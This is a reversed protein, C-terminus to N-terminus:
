KKPPPPPLPNMGVGLGEILGDVINRHILFVEQRGAPLEVEGSLEVVVDEEVKKVDKDGFGPKMELPMQRRETKSPILKGVSKEGVRVDIEMQRREKPVLQDYLKLIDEWQPQSKPLKDSYRFTGTVVIKTKGAQQVDAAVMLANSFRLDPVLFSVASAEILKGDAYIFPVVDKKVDVSVPLSLAVRVPRKPALAKAEEATPPKAEPFDIRFPQPAHGTELGNSTLGGAAGERDRNQDGAPVSAPAVGRERWLQERVAAVSGSLFDTPLKPLAEVGALLGQEDCAQIVIANVRPAFAWHIGHVVARGAGPFESTARPWLMGAADLAEALPNTAGADRGATTAGGKGAPVSAPAVGRLDLLVVPLGFRWGTLAAFWDNRNTTKRKIKGFSEGRDAKANETKEAETPEYGLVYASVNPGSRVEVEVGLPELVAKMKEAATKLAAAQPSDFIPVVLKQGRKLLPEIASGGHVLVSDEYNTAFDVKAASVKVPLTATQGDLQCRVTLKWEGAPANAPLPISMALTGERTTGRYFEQFVKGDPRLVSIHFPVVARITQKDKDLLRVSLVLDDGANLVQKASLEISKAPRKLIGYMRATTASLDCPSGGLAKEGLSKEENLDYLAGIGLSAGGEYFSSVMVGGQLQRWDAQTAIHSDNVAIVYKADQGGHIQALTAGFNNHLQGGCTTWLLNFLKEANARYWREFMLTDNDGAAMNPAAWNFPKGPQTFPLDAEFKQVSPFAVTTNGDVLVQGGGKVFHEIGAMAEASVPFTQGLVVLAKVSLPRDAALEEETVFRPTTGLRTLAVFMKYHPEGFGMTVHQRQFQSKSFLIGVGHDGRGNIALCAFRELFERGALVDAAGSKGKMNVWNTERNMGGLLNSFGECAFGIGTVGWALGHAAVRTFKGPYAARGHATAIANSLWTPRAGRNMELLGATLLWQYAYDPGGIQDNWTSQYQFDLPAYAAPFYQGYRVACHDVQVSSTNRFSPSVSRLNENFAGYVEGYMSMLYASWADLRKEFQARTETGRAAETQQRSGTGGDAMPKAYKSIEELWQKTPLDIMTGFEPRKLSLIYAIYEGESVPEMGTRKRFIDIMQADIREIYSRLPKENEGWGWYTMLGRRGGIAYGTTDWGYCFGGFNPFRGNAQAAHILRQSMSDLEEPANRTPFFSTPRTDPNCLMITGTRALTDLSAQPGTDDSGLSFVAGIGSERLTQAVGDWHKAAIEAREEPTYKKRGDFQPSPPAAEDQLSAVSRRLPSVITVRPVSAVPAPADGARLELRYDGAALRTTDLLVLGPKGAFVRTPGDANVADLTVEAADARLFIPVREGAFYATRELPLTVDTAAVTLSVSALALLRLSCNCRPM